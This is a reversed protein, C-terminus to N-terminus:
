PSWRQPNDSATGAATPSSDSRKDADQFTCKCYFRVKAAALVSPLKAAAAVVQQPDCRYFSATVFTEVQPQPM